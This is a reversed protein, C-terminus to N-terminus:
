PRAKRPPSSRRGSPRPRIDPWSPRSSSRGTRPCARGHARHGPRDRGSRVGGPGHGSRARLAPHGEREPGQPHRGARRRGAAIGGKFAAQRSVASVNATFVQDYVAAAAAKDGAAWSAEAALLLASAIESKLAPAAKGLAATLAKVAEPGGIKGLAKVADAALAADKGAALRALAPVAAASRGPASRSSSAAASTARHRTWPRSSFGTPRRGRSGRSPTAPRTRRRRSSRSPRSCPSPM